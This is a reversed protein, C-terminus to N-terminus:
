VSIKVKVLYRDLFRDIVEQSLPPHSQVRNILPSGKHPPESPEWLSVYNWTAKTARFQIGWKVLSIALGDFQFGWVERTSDTVDIIVHRIQGPKLCLHNIDRSIEM